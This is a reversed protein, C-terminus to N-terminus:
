RTAPPTPAPPSRRPVNSNGGVGLGYDGSDAQGTNKILVPASVITATAKVEILHASTSSNWSSSYWRRTDGISWGDAGGTDEAGSSTSDLQIADTASGSHNVVVFYSTSAVLMPCTAPATFTNVANATFTAPDTLTCEASASPNSDSSVENLTVTLNAGATATDAISTFGIGISSLTYGASNSGTTFQQARQSNSGHISHGVTDSSQGTNKIVVTVTQAQAPASWLLVGGLAMALLALGAARLFLAPRAPPVARPGAHAQRALPM